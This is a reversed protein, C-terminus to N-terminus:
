RGVGDVKERESGDSLYEAATNTRKPRLTKGASIINLHNKGGFAALEGRPHM